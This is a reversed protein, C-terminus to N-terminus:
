RQHALADVLWAAFTEISPDRTDMLVMRRHPPLALYALYAALADAMRGEWEARLTRCLALARTRHLVVPQEM